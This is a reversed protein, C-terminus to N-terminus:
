PIAQTSLVARAGKKPQLLRPGAPGAQVVQTARKEEEPGEAAKAGKAGQCGQCGQIGAAIGQPFGKRDHVARRGERGGTAPTPALAAGAQPHGVSWPARRRRPLPAGRLHQLHEDFHETRPRQDGDGRTRRLQWPFFSAIDTWSAQRCLLKCNGHHTYGPINVECEDDNAAYAANAMSALLVLTTITRLSM